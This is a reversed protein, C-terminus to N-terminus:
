PNGLDILHHSDGFWCLAAFGTAVILLGAAVGFLACCCCRAM